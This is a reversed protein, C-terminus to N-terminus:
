GGSGAQRIIIREISVGFASIDDFLERLFNIGFATLIGNYAPNRYFDFQNNNFELKSIYSTDVPNERLVLLSQFTSLFGLDLSLGSAVTASSFITRTRSPFQTNKITLSVFQNNTAVEEPDFTIKYLGNKPIRYELGSTVSDVYNPVFTRFSPDIDITIRYFRSGTEGRFETDFTSDV